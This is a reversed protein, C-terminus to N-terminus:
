GKKVVILVGQVRPEVRLCQAYAFYVFFNSTRPSPTKTSRLPNKTLQAYYRSLAQKTLPIIHEIPNIHRLNFCQKRILSTQL